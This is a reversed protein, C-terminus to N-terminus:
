CMNPLNLFVIQFEGDESMRPTFSTAVTEAPNGAAIQSDGTADVPVNAGTDTKKPEEGCGAIVAVGLGILSLVVLNQSVRM